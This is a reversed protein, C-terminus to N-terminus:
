FCKQVVKRTPLMKQPSFGLGPRLFSHSNPQRSFHFRLKINQGGNDRNQMGRPTPSLPTLSQSIRQWNAGRRACPPCIGRSLCGEGSGKEVRCCRRRLCCKTAWNRRSHEEGSIPCIARASFLFVRRLSPPPPASDIRWVVVVQLLISNPATSCHM